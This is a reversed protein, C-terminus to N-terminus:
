MQVMPRWQWPPWFSDMVTEAAGVPAEGGGEVFVVEAGGGGGGGAVVAVSGVARDGVEGASQAGAGLAPAPPDVVGTVPIGGGGGVEEEDAAPAAATEKDKRQM